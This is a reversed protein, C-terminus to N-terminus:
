TSHWKTKGVKYNEVGWLLRISWIYRKMGPWPPWLDNAINRIYQEQTVYREYLGIPQCTSPPWQFSAISATPASVSDCELHSGRKAGGEKYLSQRTSLEIFYSLLVWTAWSQHYEFTSPWNGLGGTHKSVYPGNSLQSTKLHPTGVTYTRSTKRRHHRHPQAMIHLYPPSGM